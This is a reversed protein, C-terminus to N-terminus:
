GHQAAPLRRARCDLDGDGDWDAAHASAGPSGVIDLGDARKLGEGEAFRGDKQRRFLIIGGNGTCSLVDDFGDGDFDVLQPVFGAAGAIMGRDPGPIVHGADGVAGAKFWEFASFKPRENSGANRYIRLKGGASQGVLLDALGDGDFHAFCPAAGGLEIDIPKGDAEVQKPPCLGTAPALEQCRVPLAFEAAFAAWILLVSCASTSAVRRGQM